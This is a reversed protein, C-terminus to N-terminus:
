ICHTSFNFFYNRRWFTLTNELMKYHIVIIFGPVPLFDSSWHVGSISSKQWLHLSRFWVAITTILLELIIHFMAFFCNILKREVNTISSVLLNHADSV